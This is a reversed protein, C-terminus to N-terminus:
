ISNHLCQGSLHDLLYYEWRFLWFHPLCLPQIACPGNSMRDLLCHHLDGHIMVGSSLGRDELKSQLIVLLSVSLMKAGLGFVVQIM